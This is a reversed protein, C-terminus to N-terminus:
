KNFNDIKLMHIINQKIMASNQLEFVIDSDKMINEFNIQM